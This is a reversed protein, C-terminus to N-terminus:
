KLDKFWPDSHEALDVGHEMIWPMVADGSWSLWREPTVVIAADEHARLFEGMVTMGTETFVRKWVRQNFALAEPGRVLRAAGACSVWGMEDSVMVTVAPRQEINRAKRTASPTAMLVQDADDLAHLLTTLHPTGDPNITGLVAIPKALFAARREKTLGEPTRYSQPIGTM